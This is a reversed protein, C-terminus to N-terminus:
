AHEQTQGRNLQAWAQYSRVWIKARQGNTDHSLMLKPTVLRHSCGGVIAAPRSTAKNPVKRLVCCCRCRSRWWYYTQPAFCYSHVHMIIRPVNRLRGRCFLFTFHGFEANNPSRLGRRSIKRTKKSSFASTAYETLCTQIGFVVTFLDLYIRFELTFYFCTKVLRWGRRRRRLHTLDPMPTM